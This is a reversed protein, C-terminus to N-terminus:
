VLTAAIRSIIECLAYATGGIVGLDKCTDAISKVVPRAHGAFDSFSVKRKRYSM